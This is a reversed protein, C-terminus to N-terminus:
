NSKKLLYFILIKTDIVGINKSDYNEKDILKFVEENVKVILGNMKFKDEYIKEINSKEYTGDM